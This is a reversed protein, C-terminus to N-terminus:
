TRGPSVHQRMLSRTEEKRIGRTQLVRWDNEKSFGAYWTHVDRGKVEYVMIAGRRNTKTNSSVWTFIASDAFQTVRKHLNESSPALKRRHVYPKDTSPSYDGREDRVFYCEGIVRNPTFPPFTVKDQRFEDLATDPALMGWFFGVSGIGSFNLWKHDFWNDIKMVYIEEPSSGDILGSLIHVVLEVFQQDDNENTHIDIPMGPQVYREPQAPAPPICLM